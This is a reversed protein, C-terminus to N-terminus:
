SYMIESMQEVSCYYGKPITDIRGIRDLATEPDYEVNKERTYYVFQRKSIVPSLKKDETYKTLMTGYEYNTSISNVGMLMNKMPISGQFPVLTGDERTKPYFLELLQKGLAHGTIKQRNTWTM